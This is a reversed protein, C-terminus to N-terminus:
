QSQLHIASKLTSWCYKIEGIAFVLVNQVNTLQCSGPACSCPIINYNVTISLKSVGNDACPGEAYLTLEHDENVNVFLVEYDIVTCNSSIKRLSQSVPLSVDKLSSHVVAPVYHGVQDVAVVSINFPDRQRVQLSHIQQDCNAKNNDNCLCVRVPESSVTDTNIRTINSLKRFYAIGAVSNVICKDLLGGFLDQGSCNADNENLNIKM